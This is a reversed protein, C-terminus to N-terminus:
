LPQKLTVHIRVYPVDVLNSGGMKTVIQRTKLVKTTIIGSIVKTQIRNIIIINYLFAIM